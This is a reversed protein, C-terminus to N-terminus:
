DDEQIHSWLEIEGELPENAFQDKHKRIANELTKKDELVIELQNCLFDLIKYM